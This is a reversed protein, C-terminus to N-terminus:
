RQGNTSERWTQFERQIGRQSVCTSDVDCIFTGNRSFIRGVKTTCPSEGSCDFTDLSLILSIMVPWMLVIFYDVTSMTDLRSRLALDHFYMWLWEPSSNNLHENRKNSDLLRCWWEHIPAGRDLSPNGYRMFDAFSHMPVGNRRGPMSVSDAMSSMTTSLQWDLERLNSASNWCDTSM